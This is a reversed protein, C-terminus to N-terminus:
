YDFKPNKKKEQTIFVGGVQIGQVGAFPQVPAKRSWEIQPIRSNNEHRNMVGAERYFQQMNGPMAPRLRKCAATALGLYNLCPRRTADHCDRIGHKVSEVSLSQISILSCHLSASNQMHNCFIDIRRNLGSAFTSTVLCRQSKLPLTYRGQNDAFRCPLTMPWHMMCTTAPIM